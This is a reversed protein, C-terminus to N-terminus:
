GQQNNREIDLEDFLTSFASEDDEKSRGGTIVVKGSAFILLVCRSYSPRYVLGPFQEPEYETNELGLHIVLQSLNVSQQLNGVCVVNKVEFIPDSVNIGKSSLFDLFQQNVDHMKDFDNRGRLIYKGTRYLIVLEGEKEFRFFAASVQPDYNSVPLESDKALQEIDVEANIEGSAAINVVDVENKDIM